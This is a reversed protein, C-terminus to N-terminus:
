IQKFGKRPLFEPLDDATKDLKIDAATRKKDGQILPGSRANGNFADSSDNVIDDIRQHNAKRQKAKVQEIAARKQSRTYAKGAEILNVIDDISQQTLPVFEGKREFTFSHEYEGRSPFPGLPLLGSKDDRILEWLTPSGYMEPPCWKELIWRNMGGYKPIWRYEAVERVLNVDRVDGKDNVIRRDQAQDNRDEWLGGALELRSESWVIRYIPEGYFNTGFKELQREV